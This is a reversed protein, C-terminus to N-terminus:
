DMVIIERGYQLEGCEYNREGADSSGRLIPILVIREIEEDFDITAFFTGGQNLGINPWTDEEVLETIESTQHGGQWFSKVQFSFIPVNGTNSIYLSGDFYDSDFAADACALEINTGGFKTITEQNISRFWLFIIVAIIVVIAILLVTAIVPSVGRKNSYQNVRFKKSFNIKM